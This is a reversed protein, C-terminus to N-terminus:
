DHRHDGRVLAGGGGADGVDGGGQRRGRGGGRGAGGGGGGVDAPGEEDGARGLGGVVEEEQGAEAVGRFVGGGVRRGRSAPLPVTGGPRDRVPDARSRAAPIDRRRRGGPHGRAHGDAILSVANM